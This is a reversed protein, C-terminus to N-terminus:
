RGDERSPLCLEISWAIQCIRRDTWTLWYLHEDNRRLWEFGAPTRTMQASRHRACHTRTATSLQDRASALLALIEEPTAASTRDPAPSSDSGGTRRENRRQALADNLKKGPWSVAFFTVLALVAASWGSTFGAARALTALVWSAVAIVPVSIWTRQWTSLGGASRIAGIRAGALRAPVATLLPHDVEENLQGFRAIARELAHRASILASLGDRDM